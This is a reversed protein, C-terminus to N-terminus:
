KVFWNPLTAPDLRENDTFPNFVGFWGYDNIDRVITPRTTDIHEEFVLRGSPSAAALNVISSTEWFMGGLSKKARETPIISRWRAYDNPQDSWLCVNTPHVYGLTTKATAFKLEDIVTITLDSKFPAEVACQALLAADAIIHCIGDVPKDLREVAMVVRNSAVACGNDIRITRFWDNAFHPMVKLVNALRVITECPVIFDTM